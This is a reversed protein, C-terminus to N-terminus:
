PTAAPVRLREWSVRGPMGDADSGSFGIKQQWMAYSERDEQSWQDDPAQTFASCGEEILREDMAVIIPSRPAQRFFDGGPFPQDGSVPGSPSGVPASVMLQRGVKIVNVDAIHNWKALLAVTTHFKTAISTLTDGPKVVYTQTQTMHGGYLSGHSRVLPALLAGAGSWRSATPRMTRM